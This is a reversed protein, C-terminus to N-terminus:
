HVDDPRIKCGHHGAGSLLPAPITRGLSSVYQYLRAFERYDLDLAGTYSGSELLAGAIVELDNKRAQADPQQEELEEYFRYSTKVTRNSM